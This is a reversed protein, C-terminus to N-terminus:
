QLYAIQISHIYLLMNGQLRQIKQARAESARREEESENTNEEEDEPCSSLCRYAYVCESVCVSVM